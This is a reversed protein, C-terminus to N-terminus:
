LNSEIQKKYTDISHQKQLEFRRLAPARVKQKRGVHYFGFFPVWTVPDRSNYVRTVDLNHLTACWSKFALNGIRPSGFTVVSVTIDTQHRALQAGFLVSVAGGLSHGTVHICSPLTNNNLDRLVRCIDDYVSEMYVLFGAHVKSKMVGPFTTRWRSVNYFWDGLGDTGRFAVIATDKNVKEVTAFIAGKEVPHVSAPLHHDRYADKAYQVMPRIMCPGPRHM